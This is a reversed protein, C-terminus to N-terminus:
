TLSASADQSTLRPKTLASDIGIFSAEDRTLM